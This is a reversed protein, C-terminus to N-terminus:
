RQGYGEPDAAIVANIDVSNNVSTVISGQLRPENVETSQTPQVFTGDGFAEAADRRRAVLDGTVFHDPVKVSEIEGQAAFPLEVGAAPSDHTRERM